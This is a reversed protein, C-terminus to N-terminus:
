APVEEFEMYGTFYQRSINEASPLQTPYGYLASRAALLPDFAKSVMDRYQPVVCSRRRGAIAAAVTEWDTGGLGGGRVAATPRGSLTCTLRRYLPGPVTNVQGGKTRTHVSTDNTAVAWGDSIGVEVVRFIAIEGVDVNTATTAIEVSVTSVPASAQPFLWACVSGDPLRVTTGTAGAASVQLGPPINLGLVAVIGPVVAEALTITIALSGTRRIRSSRGPKGDFLAAGQDTSLWTGGTLTATEVAPM